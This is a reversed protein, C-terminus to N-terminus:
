GGTPSIKEPDLPRKPNYYTNPYNKTDFIDQVLAIKELVFHYYRFDGREYARNMTWLVYDVIELMPIQSPSQIFVRIESEINRNWKGRFSRMAEELASQM